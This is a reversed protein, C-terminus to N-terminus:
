CSRSNKKIEPFTWLFAELPKAVQTEIEEPTAGPYVAIVLGQRITFSPFENKSMQELGYVGFIVLAAVLLIVIQRYHMVTEVISLSRKSM